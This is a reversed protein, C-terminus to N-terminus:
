DKKPEPNMDNNKEPSDVIVRPKEPKNIEAPPWIVMPKAYKPAADRLCVILGNNAALYIRDNATNLIHVNFESLNASGLPVARKRATDTPRKADYVLLRGQRDRIYVFEENAGILTDANNDTRWLIEGDARRVCVVGSDDGSAYVHDKTIFPSHNNLGGVDSRWKVLLGGSLTGSSADIGVLLGNGMPVYHEQGSSSPRAAIPATLRDNVEVTIKGPESNKNIAVVINDETVAYVRTPTLNPPYLIRATLAYEWRLPPEIPKPRLDSLLMSSSVSPMQMAISPTQQVYRGSELRLHYPQRLSALTNLSPAPARNDLSYPPVVSPLTSVSPTRQGTAGGVPAQLDKPRYSTGFEDPPPPALGGPPYRKLLDDVPSTATSKSARALPDDSPKLPDNITIPRPLNYVAIRHGGGSGSRLGLVCYVGSEDAVLGATPAAGLEAVFETAGTYRHFTYLKTLYACFVFRSNAAVPHANGYSGNGLRAVWQIRGTLADLAVLVGTRTQVFVQDDLTQIQLLADRNGEVPLFQVWETKLNLRELVAKDPPVAKSYVNSQQASALMCSLVAAVVVVLCRQWM